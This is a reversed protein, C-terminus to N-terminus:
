EEIGLEECMIGGKIMSKAFPHTALDDCVIRVKPVIPGNKYCCM